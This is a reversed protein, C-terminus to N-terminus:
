LQVGGRVWSAWSSNHAIDIVGLTNGLIEASKAFGPRVVDLRATSLLSNQVWRGPVAM